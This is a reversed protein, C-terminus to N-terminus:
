EKPNVTRQFTILYNVHRRLPMIMGAVVDSPLNGILRVNYADGYMSYSFNCNCIDGAAKEVPQYPYIEGTSDSFVQLTQGEIRNGEEDVVSVYISHDSGSEDINQFVVSVARWFGQCPGVDASM